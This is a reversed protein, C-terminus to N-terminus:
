ENVIEEKGLIDQATELAIDYEEQSIPGDSLKLTADTVASVGQQLNSAHTITLIGEPIFSNDYYRITHGTYTDRKIVLKPIYDPYISQTDYEEISQYQYDNATIFTNKNVTDYAYNYPIGLVVEEGDSIRIMKGNFEGFTDDHRSRATENYKYAVGDVITPFETSKDYITEEGADNFYYWDGNSESQYILTYTDNIMTMDISYVDKAVPTLIAYQYSDESTAKHLWGIGNDTVYVSSIAYVTPTTFHLTASTGTVTYIRSFENNGSDYNAIAYCRVTNASPTGDFHIRGLALETFGSTVGSISYTFSGSTGNELDCWVINWSNGTKTWNYAYYVNNNERDQICGSSYSQSTGTNTLKSSLVTYDTKDIELYLVYAPSSSLIAVRAIDGADYAKVTDSSSGIDDVIDAVGDISSLDIEKLITTETTYGYQKNKVRNNMYENMLDTHKMYVLDAAKYGDQTPIYNFNYYPSVSRASADMGFVKSWETITFKNMWTDESVIEGNKGLVTYSGMLYDPDTLTFQTPMIKYMTCTQSPYSYRLYKGTSHYLGEYVYGGDMGSSLIVKKDNNIVTIVQVTYKSDSWYGSVSENLVDEVFEFTDTSIDFHYKKCTKAPLCASVTNDTNVLLYTSINSPYIYIDGSIVNKNTDITDIIMIESTSSAAGETQKYQEKIFTYAKDTYVFDSTNGNQISSSYTMNMCYQIKYSNSVGYEYKYLGCLKIEGINLLLSKMIAFLEANEDTKNTENYICKNSLVIDKYTFNYTIDEDTMWDYTSYEYVANYTLGDTSEYRAIMQSDMGWDSSVSLNAYTSTVYFSLTNGYDEREIPWSTSISTSSTVATSLTFSKGLSAISNFLVNEVLELKNHGYVIAKQGEAIDANDVQADLDEMTAYTIYEQEESSGGEATGEVTLVTVGKVLKDPTLGIKQAVTEAPIDQALISGVRYLKEYETNTTVQVKGTIASNDYFGRLTGVGTQSGSKVEQVTGVIKGDNGYAIKGYVIDTASATADSTDIGTEISLIEQDFQEAAIPETTEKKTRIADAVDTLFKSLNSTDAM